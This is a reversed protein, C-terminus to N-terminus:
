GGGTLYLTGFSEISWKSCDKWGGQGSKWMGCWVRWNLLKERSGRECVTGDPGCLADWTTHPANQYVLFVVAGRPRDNTESARGIDQQQYSSPGSLHAVPPTGM